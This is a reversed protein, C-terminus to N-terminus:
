SNRPLYVRGTTLFALRCVAGAFLLHDGTPLRLINDFFAQPSVLEKDSFCDTERKSANSFIVQANPGFDRRPIISDDLQLGIAELV